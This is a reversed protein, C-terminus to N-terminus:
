FTGFRNGASANSGSEATGLSGDKQDHWHNIQAFILLIGTINLCMGVAICPSPTPYMFGSLVFYLIARVIFIKIFLTELFFTSIKDFGPCFFYIVPFEWIALFLGVILTWIGVGIYFGFVLSVLSLAISALATFKGAIAAYKAWDVGTFKEMFGITM